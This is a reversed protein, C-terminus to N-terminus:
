TMMLALWQAEDMWVRSYSFVRPSTYRPTKLPFFLSLPFQAFRLGVSILYFCLVQGHMVCGLCVNVFSHLCLFFYIPNFMNVYCSYYENAM